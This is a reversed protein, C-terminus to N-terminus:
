QPRQADCFDSGTEEAGELFVVDQDHNGGQDWVDLIVDGPAEVYALSSSGTGSFWDGSWQFTYSGVGGTSNSYAVCWQNNAEGPVNIDAVLPSADSDVDPALGLAGETEAASPLGWAGIVLAMVAVGIVGLGKARTSQKTSM